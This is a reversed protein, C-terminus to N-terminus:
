SPPNDLPPKKSQSLEQAYMVAAIVEAGTRAAEERSIDEGAQQRDLLDGRVELADQVEKTANVINAASKRNAEEHELQELKNPDKLSVKFGPLVEGILFPYSSTVDRAPKSKEEM